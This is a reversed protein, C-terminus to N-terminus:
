ENEYEFLIQHGGVLNRGREAAADMYENLSGYAMSDIGLKIPDRLQRGVTNM